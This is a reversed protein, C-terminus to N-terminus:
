VEKILKIFGAQEFHHDNTFAETISGEQMVIFSICDTLSWEKDDRTSYLLWGKQFFETNEPIIMVNKNKKLDNIYKVVRNRYIPNRLENAVELIILETTILICNQRYLQKIIEISRKHFTDKDNILAVWAVTDVFVGKPMKRQRGMYITIMNM